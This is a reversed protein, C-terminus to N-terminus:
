LLPMQREAFCYGKNVIGHDVCRLVNQEWKKDLDARASPVYGQTEGNSGSVEGSNIFAPYSLLPAVKRPSHSSPSPLTITLFKNYNGIGKNDKNKIGNQLFNPTRAQKAKRM